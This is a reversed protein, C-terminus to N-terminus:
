NIFINSGKLKKANELVGKKQKYCLLKCAITGPKNSSTKGKSHHAREININELGLKEKFIKQIEKECQEWTEGKKETVGGIRPNSRRSRDELGGLKNYVYEPDIKKDYFEQLETEMNECREELRKDKEELVNETFELSSKLDCIEKGLNKIKGESKKIEEMTIKFNTSILNGKNKEEKEFEKKFINRIVKMYGENFFTSAEKM